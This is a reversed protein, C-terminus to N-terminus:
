FTPIWFDFLFSLSWIREACFTPLTQILRFLIIKGRNGAMKPMEPMNKMSRSFLPHRPDHFIRPASPSKCRRQQACNSWHSNELMLFKRDIRPLFRASLGQLQKWLCQQVSWRPLVYMQRRGRRRVIARCHLELVYIRQLERESKWHRM